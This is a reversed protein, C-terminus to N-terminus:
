KAPLSLHSKQINPGSLGEDNIMYVAYSLFLLYLNWNSNIRPLCGFFSCWSVSMRKHSESVGNLQFTSLKLCVDCNCLEAYLPRTIYFIVSILHSSLSFTGSISYITKSQASKFLSSRLFYMENFGSSSLFDKCHGLLKVDDM